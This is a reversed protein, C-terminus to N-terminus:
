RPFQFKASNARGTVKAPAGLAREMPFVAVVPEMKAVVDRLGVVTAHTWRGSVDAALTAMTVTAIFSRELTRVSATTRVIRAAM